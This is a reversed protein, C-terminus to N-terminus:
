GMLDTHLFFHNKCDAKQLCAKNISTERIMNVSKKWIRDSICVYM